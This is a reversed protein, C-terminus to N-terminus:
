PEFKISDVIQGLERTLEDGADLQYSTIVVWRLGNVDLIRLTTHWGAHIPVGWSEGAVPPTTWLDFYDCGGVAERFTLDIQKGQHGDLAISVPPSLSVIPLARVAAVLDDVTLGIPPELPPRTLSDQPCPDANFGGVSTIGLSAVRNTGEDVPGVIRYVGGGRSYSNAFWGAPLTAVMEESVQGRIRYNGPELATGPHTGSLPPLPRLAPSQTPAPTQSPGGVKPGALFSIGVIAALVLAAAGMSLRVINANTDLSRRAPWWSRRQPTTDLRALVTQLVRDASEHEDVRLWSRVIRTTDREASM